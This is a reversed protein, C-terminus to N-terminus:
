FAEITKKAFAYRNPPIDTARMSCSVDLAIMIDKGEVMNEQLGGEIVPRSLALLVLMLVLLHGVPVLKRHKDTYFIVTLPILLWLFSPYMLSM